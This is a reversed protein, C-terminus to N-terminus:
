ISALRVIVKASTCIPIQFTVQFCKLVRVPLLLVECDGERLCNPVEVSTFLLNYQQKAQQAKMTMMMHMLLM